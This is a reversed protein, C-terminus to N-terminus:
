VPEPGSMRALWPLVAESAEKVQRLLWYGFPEISLIGGRFFTPESECFPVIPHEGDPSTFRTDFAYRWGGDFVNLKQIAPKGIADSMEKLADYSNPEIAIICRPGGHTNGSNFTDVGPALWPAPICWTFTGYRQVLYDFSNAPPDEPKYDHRRWYGVRKPFWRAFHTGGLDEVRKQDKPLDVLEMIMTARPFINHLQTVRAVAQDVADNASTPEPWADLSPLVLPTVDPPNKASSRMTEMQRYEIGAALVDAVAREMAAEATARDPHEEDIDGIRVRTGDLRAIARRRESGFFNRRIVCKDFLHWPGVRVFGARLYRDIRESFSAQDCEHHRCFGNDVACTLFTRGEGYDTFEVFLSEAYHYLVERSVVCVAPIEPTTPHGLLPLGRSWVCM